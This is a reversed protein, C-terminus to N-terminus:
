KYPSHFVTISAVNKVSNSNSEQVMYSYVGCKIIQKNCRFLNMINGHIISDIMIAIPPSIETM